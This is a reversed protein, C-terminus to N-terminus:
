TARSTTIRPASITHHMSYPLVRAPSKHAPAAALVAAPALAAEALPARAQAPAPVLLALPPPAHHPRAAKAALAVGRGCRDSTPFRGPPAPAACTRRRLTLQRYMM